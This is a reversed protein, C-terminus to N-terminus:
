FREYTGLNLLEVLEPQLALDRFPEKAEEGADIDGLERRVRRCTGTKSRHHHNSPPRIV